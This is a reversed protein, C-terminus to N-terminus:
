ATLWTRNFSQVLAARSTEGTAITGFHSFPVSYGAALLALAATVTLLWGAVLLGTKRGVPPESSNM